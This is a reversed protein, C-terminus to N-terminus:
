GEMLFYIFILKKLDYHLYYLQNWLFNFFYSNGIFTKKLIIILLGEPEPWPRDM